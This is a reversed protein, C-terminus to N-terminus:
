SFVSTLVNLLNSDILLIQDYLNSYIYHKIMYYKSYKLNLKPKFQEEKIFTRYLMEEFFFQKRFTIGIDYQYNRM